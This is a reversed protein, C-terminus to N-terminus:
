VSHSSNLRTSKRDVIMPVPFGFLKRKRIGKPYGYWGYLFIAAMGAISFYFSTLIMLFVGLTYLGPKGKEWYRDVGLFTMLLFPMYQVFMIQHCSQYIMPGALLFLVAVGLAIETSFRRKKLWGYLLCVSVALCIVSAAMLYDSMKVFPLLYAILM